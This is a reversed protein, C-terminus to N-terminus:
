IVVKLCSPLHPIPDILAQIKFGKKEIPMSVLFSKKYFDKNYLKARTNLNSSWPQQWNITWTANQQLM